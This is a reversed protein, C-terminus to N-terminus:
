LVGVTGTGDSLDKQTCGLEVQWQHMPADNLLRPLVLLGLSGPPQAHLQPGRSPQLKPQPRQRHHHNRPPLPGPHHPHRLLAPGPQTKHEQLLRLTGQILDVCMLLISVQVEMDFQKGGDM